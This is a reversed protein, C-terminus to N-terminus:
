YIRALSGAKGRARPSSTLGRVVLQTALCNRVDLPAPGTVRPRNSGGSRVAAPEIGPVGPRAVPGPQLHGRSGTDESRERSEGRRRHHEVMRCHGGDDAAVGAPLGRAHRVPAGAGVGQAHGDDRRAPPHRPKERPCEVLVKLGPGSLDPLPTRRGRLEAPCREEEPVKLDGVLTAQSINWGPGTGAKGPVPRCGVDLVLGRAGILREFMTLEQRTGRRCDEQTAYIPVPFGGEPAFREALKLGVDSVDTLVCEEPDDGEACVRTWDVTWRVGAYAPGGLTPLGAALVALAGVAGSLIKGTM